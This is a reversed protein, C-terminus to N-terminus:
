GVRQHKKSVLRQADIITSALIELGGTALGVVAPSRLLTGRGLAASLALMCLAGAAALATRARELVMLAQLATERQKKTVFHETLAAHTIGCHRGSAPAGCICPQALIPLCVIMDGSVAETHSHYRSISSVLWGGSTKHRRFSGKAALCLRSCRHIVSWCLALFTPTTVKSCSPCHRVHQEYHNLLEHEPLLEKTGKMPM